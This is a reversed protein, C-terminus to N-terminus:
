KILVEHETVMHIRHVLFNVLTKKEQPFPFAEMNMLVSKFHNTPTQYFAYMCDNLMTISIAVDSNLVFCSESMTDVRGAFQNAKIPSLQGAQM